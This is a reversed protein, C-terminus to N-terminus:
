LFVIVLKLDEVTMHKEKGSFNHKKRNSKSKFLSM